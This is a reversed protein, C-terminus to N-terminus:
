EDRWGVCGPQNCRPGPHESASTWWVVGHGTAAIHIAWKPPMMPDGEGDYAKAVARGDETVFVVSNARRKREVLATVEEALQQPQKGRGLRLLEELERIM